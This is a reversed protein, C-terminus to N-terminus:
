KGQGTFLIQSRTLNRNENNNLNFDDEPIEVIKMKARIYFIVHKARPVQIINKGM